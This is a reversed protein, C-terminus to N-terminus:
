YTITDRSVGAFQSTNLNIIGFAVDTGTANAFIGSGGTTQVQETFLFVGPALMTTLTVEFSGTIANAGNQWHFTGLLAGTPSQGTVNGTGTFPGLLNTVGQVASVPNGVGSFVARHTRTVQATAATGLLTTAALFGLALRAPHFDM